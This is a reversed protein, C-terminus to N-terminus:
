VDTLLACCCSAQLSLVAHCLVYQKSITGKHCATCAYNDFQLCHMVLIWDSYFAHCLCLGASSCLVLSQQNSDGASPQDACELQTRSARHFVHTESLASRHLGQQGGDCCCLSFGRKVGGTAKGDAQGIKVTLIFVCLLCGGVGCTGPFCFRVGRGQQAVSGLLQGLAHALELLM